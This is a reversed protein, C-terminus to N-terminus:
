LNKVLVINCPVYYWIVLFYFLKRLSSKLRLYNQHKRWFGAEHFSQLPPQSDQWHHGDRPQQEVLDGWVQSELMVITLIIIIMAASSSTTAWQQWRPEIKGAQLGGVKGPVRSLLPMLGLPIILIIFNDFYHRSICPLHHHCNDGIRNFCLITVISLFLLCQIINTNVIVFVIIVFIMNIIINPYNNQWSSQKAIVIVIVFCLQNGLQVKNYKSTLM